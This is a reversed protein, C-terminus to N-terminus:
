KRVGKMLFFGHSEIHRAIGDLLACAAEPTRNETNVIALDRVADILTVLEPDDYFIAHRYGTLKVFLRKFVKERPKTGFDEAAGLVVAAIRRRKLLIEDYVARCVRMNHEAAGIEEAHPGEPDVLPNLPTVETGFKAGLESPGPLTDLFKSTLRERFNETPEGEHGYKQRWLVDVVTKYQEAIQEQLGDFNEVLDTGIEAVEEDISRMEDLFAKVNAGPVFTGYRTKYGYYKVAFVHRHRAHNVRNLAPIRLQHVHRTTGPPLEPMETTKLSVNRKIKATWARVKSRVFIGEAIADAIFQHREPSLM